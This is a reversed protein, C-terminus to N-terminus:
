AVASLLPRDFPRDNIRPRKRRAPGTRRRAVVQLAIFHMADPLSFRPAAFPVRAFSSGAIAGVTACTAIKAFAAPTYARSEANSAFSRAQAAM